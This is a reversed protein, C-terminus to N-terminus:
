NRARCVPQEHHEALSSFVTAFLHWDKAYQRTLLRNGAAVPEKALLDRGELRDAVPIANGHGLVADVYQDSDLLQEAASQSITVLPHACFGIALTMAALTASPVVLSWRIAKDAPKGQTKEVETDTASSWFSASWIKTMSYLTLMGVLLAVFVLTFQRDEIAAQILMLKAWFGSLPPIGALSLAPILFLIALWLRQRYIGSVQSIEFGDHGNQGSARQAIGAILFLNAKVIIHHVLYFVTGALALPTAIALGLLM